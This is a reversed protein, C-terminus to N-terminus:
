DHSSAAAHSHPTIYQTIPVQQLTSPLVPLPGTSHPALSVTDQVSSHPFYCSMVQQRSGRMTSHSTALRVLRHWRQKQRLPRLLRAEIPLSFYSQVIPSFTDRLAYM